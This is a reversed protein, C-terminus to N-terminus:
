GTYLSTIELQLFPIIVICPDCTSNPLITNKLFLFSILLFVESNSCRRRQGHFPCTSWNTLIVMHALLVFRKTSLLIHTNSLGPSYQVMSFRNYSQLLMSRAQLHLFPTVNMHARPTIINSCDYSETSCYTSGQGVVRAKVYM